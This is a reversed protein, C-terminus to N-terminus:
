LLGQSVDYVAFMKSDSQLIQLANIAAATQTTEVM